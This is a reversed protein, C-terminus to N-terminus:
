TKTKPTRVSVDIPNVTASDAIRCLASTIRALAGPRGLETM